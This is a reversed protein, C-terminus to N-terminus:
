TSYDRKEQNLVLEHIDCATVHFIDHIVQPDFNQKEKINSEIIHLDIPRYSIM